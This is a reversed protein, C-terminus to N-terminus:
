QGFPPERVTASQTFDFVSDDPNFRAQDAKSYRLDPTQGIDAFVTEAQIAASREDAADIIPIDVMRGILQDEVATIATHAANFNGLKITIPRGQFNETLAAAEIEGAAGTLQATTGTISQDLSRRISFGATIGALPNYEVGDHQGTYPESWFRLAGSDFEIDVLLVPDENAQFDEALTM